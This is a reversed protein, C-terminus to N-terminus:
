LSIVGFENFVAKTGIYKWHCTGDTIDASTGTPGGTNGSTAATILEYVKDGDNYVTQGLNGVTYDHLAQWNNGNHYGSATCVWGLNGGAEPLTNIIRQGRFWYGTTPLASLYSEPTRAADPEPILGSDAGSTGSFVNGKVEFGFMGGPYGPGASYPTLVVPNAVIPDNSNWINDNIRGSSYRISTVQIKPVVTVVDFRCNEVVLPGARQFVIMNGDGDIADAAWRIGRISVSHQVGAASNTWLLRKSGESTAGVIRIGGGAGQGAGLGLDAITSGGFTGGSWTYSGLDIITASNYFWCNVFSQDVAQTNDGKVCATTCGQIEVNDFMHFDNNADVDGGIRVGYNFTGTGSQPAIVVDRLLNRTNINPLPGIHGASAANSSMFVAESPSIGAGDTTLSMSEISCFMSHQMVILPKTEWSSGASAIITSAGKGAGVLRVARWANIIITDTVIYKGPPFYVVGGSHYPAPYDVVRPLADIAAQIAATDDAVGNGIAGYDKVNFTGSPSEIAGFPQWVGPTGTDVCIWGAPEGLSPLSNFVIEGQAHSGAVPFTSAASYPYAITQISANAFQISTGLVLKNQFTKQGALTQTTTSVLGARAATALPPPAPITQNPM